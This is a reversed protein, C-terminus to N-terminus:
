NAEIAARLAPAEAKDIVGDGNADFELEIDTDVKAKGDTQILVLRDKLMERAETWDLFGDGDKDYKKEIATDVVRWKKTWYLRREAPDVHGDGNADLKSIHFARLEVADVKGDDNKDADKEWPRDVDSRNRLYADRKIFKAEAPDIHGDKNKDARAERPTNVKARQRVRPPVQSVADALAMTGAVLGIGVVWAGNKM